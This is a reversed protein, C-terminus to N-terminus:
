PEDSLKGCYCTGFQEVGQECTWDVRCDRWRHGRYEVRSVLSSWCFRRSFNLLLALRYDFRKRVSM